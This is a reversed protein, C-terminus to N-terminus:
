EDPGTDDSRKWLEFLPEGKSNNGSHEWLQDSIRYSFKLHNGVRSVDRSFYQIMETYIGNEATYNGGGCGSFSGSELDYAVWQFYGDVLLKLTKRTSEADRYQMSDGQKRAHFYWTGSLGASNAYPKQKKLLPIGEASLTSDTLTIKFRKSTGAAEPDDSNFHVWETLEDGQLAWKGGNTSLFKGSESEFWVALQHDGSFLVRMVAEKGDPTEYTGEWVGNLNQAMSNASMLLVLFFGCLLRM